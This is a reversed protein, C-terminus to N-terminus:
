RRAPNGAPVARGGRGNNLLEKRMATLEEFAPKPTMDARLLGGFPLHHGDHDSLKRWTVSEVMPKSLALEYFCRLWKSQTQESWAARWMGGSIVSMRGGWADDKHSEMASPVQVATVHLPRGLASFRDLLNSIQFFDRVFMGDVGLGFYFQLGFGDFNIGSQIAMDAYLLPPITRPNRAYYEGWPAVLDITMPTRPCVQKTVAITTRTLEMLQEFNFSLCNNAHIGSIVEWVAIKNGYRQVVRRVHDCILDRLTEFDHEWVYVWPPVHQETFSVLSAGHIPIRHKTLWDVWLDTPRWNFQQESPQLAQWSFPVSAFDFARAFFLRYEESGNAVDVTCGFPHRPAIQPQRRRRAYLDQALQLVMDEGIQVATALGRDAISAAQEPTKAQLSEILALRCQQIIPRAQEGATADFQQWEEVKNIIRMLRGRLLEVQVIYPKEREPLRTTELLIRGMGPVPWLVALAAPGPSRKTCVIQGKKYDIDARLPVGDGGVLYAGDLDVSTVTKDEAFVFFRLM